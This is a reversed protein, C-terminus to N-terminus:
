SGPARNALLNVAKRASESGFGNAELWHKAGFHTLPLAFCESRHMDIGKSHWLVAVRPLIDLRCTGAFNEVTFLVDIMIVELSWRGFRVATAGPERSAIADIGPSYVLRTAM